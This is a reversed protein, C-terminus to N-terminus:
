KKHKLKLKEITDMVFHEPNEVAHGIEIFLRKLLDYTRYDANIHNFKTTGMYQCELCINLQTIIKHNSDYFVIADRYVPSCLWHPIDFIEIKLISRIRYTIPDTSKFTNTKKCSPHFENEDNILYQTGGILKELEILRKEGKSGWDKNEKKQLKRELYEQQLLAKNEEFEAGRQFSYTEVYDIDLNDIFDPSSIYTYNPKM